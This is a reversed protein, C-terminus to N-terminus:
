SVLHESLTPVLSDPLSAEPESGAQRRPPQRRAAKARPAKGTGGSGAPPLALLMCPLLLNLLQTQTRQMDEHEKVKLRYTTHSKTLRWAAVKMGGAGEREM